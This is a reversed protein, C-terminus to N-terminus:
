EGNREEEKGSRVRTQCPLIVTFKSGKGPTSEVKIEGHMLEVLRKVISLGLGSGKYRRTPSGDVQRFPEFIEDLMNEPIGIGTDEVEIAWHDDDIGYIRLWVHGKETFKVANGLLNAIIQRIWYPDGYVKEPINPAIETHVEVGKPAAVAEVSPVVKLLDKPSFLTINLRIRGSELEAQNLLASTFEVLQQASYFIGELAHRQKENIPGLAGDLLMESYGVIGGLPTRMDHSVNGLLQTKFKNAKDLAENAERLAEELRKKETIDEKVAVFHTIEGEENRIPAISAQEWYLEGNKRRNIIEGRWVEGRLITEWMERYFEPPHKGSALIRPNQGKAEEASYGTVETFAPNVYEITGNRDTIVVSHASQEIARHLKRLEQEAEKRDTIDEKVAVFNVVKGDEDLVPAITQYEWYLSGDKRRNILEGRWVNGESLTKQIQDYFEKDYLGSDLILPTKGIVEEASYGTIRTFAPNVYEIKWDPDTIVVANASYEVARSLKRLEAEAAVRWSIDRVSLALLRQGEYTIYGLTAEAVFKSGDCRLATAQIAIGPKDYNDIFAYFAEDREEPAVFDIPPRGVAEEASCKFMKEFAPNVAVINVGDHIVLAELAGEFLERFRRESEALAEAHRRTAGAIGFLLAAEVLFILVIEKYWYWMARNMVSPVAMLVVNFAVLWLFQRRSMLLGGIVIAALNWGVMLLYFSHTLPSVSLDMVVSGFSYVFVTLYIGLRYHVTRSLLYSLLVVLATFYIYLRMLFPTPAITVWMLMPFVVVVLTGISTLALSRASVRDLPSKLAKSPEAMRRFTSVLFSYIPKVFGEIDGM